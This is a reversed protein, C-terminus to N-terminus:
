PITSPDETFVPSSQVKEATINKLIMHIGRYVKTM